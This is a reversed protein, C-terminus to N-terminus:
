SRRRNMPESNTKINIESNMGARRARESVRAGRYRCDIILGERYGEERSSPWIWRLLPEKSEGAPDGMNLERGPVAGGPLGANFISCSCMLGPSLTSNSSDSLRPHLLGAPDGVGGGPCTAHSQNQSSTGRSALFRRRGRRLLDSM